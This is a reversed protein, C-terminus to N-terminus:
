LPLRAQASQAYSLLLHSGKGSAAQSGFRCVM